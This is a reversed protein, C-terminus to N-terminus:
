NFFRLESSTRPSKVNNSHNEHKILPLKWLLKRDIKPYENNWNKKNRERPNNENRLVSIRLSVFM